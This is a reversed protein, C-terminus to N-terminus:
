YMAFLIINNSFGQYSSLVHVNSVDFSLIHVNSVDITGKSGKCRYVLHKCLLQYTHAARVNDFQINLYKSASKPSSNKLYNINKSMDEIQNLGAGENGDESFKSFASMNSLLKASLHKMEDERLESMNLSIKRLMSTLANLQSITIDSFISKSMYLDRKPLLNVIKDTETRHNGSLEEDITSSHTISQGEEHILSRLFLIIYDGVDCSCADAPINLEIYTNFAERQAYSLHYSHDELCSEVEDKESIEDEIEIGVENNYTHANTDNIEGDQRMYDLEIKDICIDDGVVVDKPSNVSEFVDMANLKQPEKMDYDIIDELNYLRRSYLLAAELDEITSSLLFDPDKSLIFDRLSSLRNRDALQWNQLEISRDSCCTEPAGCGILDDDLYPSFSSSMYFHKTYDNGILLIWEIFQSETMGLTKSLIERRWVIASTTMKNFVTGMSYSSAITGFLIYPCRKMALFDRHSFPFTYFNESAQLSLLRSISFEACSFFNFPIRISKRTMATATRNLQANM